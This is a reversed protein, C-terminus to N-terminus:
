RPTALRQLGQKSYQDDPNLELAKRYDAMAKDREGSAEYAVGRRLYDMSHVGPGSLEIAKSLDALALDYRGMDYYAIGLQGYAVPAEPDIGIAKEFDAIAQDRLGKKLYATGRNVYSGAIGKPDPPSVIDITCARIATDADDSLCSPRQAWAPLAALTLTLELGLALAPLM